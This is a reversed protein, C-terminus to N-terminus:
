EKLRKRPVIHTGKKGYHISFRNTTEFQNTEPNYVYGIEKDVIVFEKNTWLGNKDVRPEGKGYYQNVFNQAENLDGNIYSKHEDPNYTNSNLIHKNQNGENLTLPLEGSNIKSLMLERANEIIVTKDTPQLDKVSIRKYGEVSARKTDYLLNNNNSFKRYKAQLENIKKQTQKAGIEDGSSSLALRQNKLSRLKTEMARQLQTLKYKRESNEAYNHLEEDSYVPESIGIIIPFPIHRCNWQCIPRPFGAYHNGKVDKCDMGSQMKLFEEKSFQRGQVPLHDPASIAHASLEVGNSGFREGHYDLMHQQLQKVGDILNQRIHSDLRRSYGSEWRLEVEGTNKNVTLTSNKARLGTALEKVTKRMATHYDVTGSQVEYIAKDIARTYMQRLNLYRGDDIKYALTQSLNTFDLATQRAMSEVLTNLYTDNYHTHAAIGKASYFTKAFEDNGDAVQHLADVIAQQGQNSFKAILKTIKSFDAGLYEIANTLKKVDSPSLEGIIKIREAIVKAIEINIDNAINVAENPLANIWKENQIKSM